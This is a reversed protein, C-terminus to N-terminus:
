ARVAPLHCVMTLRNAVWDRDQHLVGDGPCLRIAADLNELALQYEDHVPWGWLVANECEAIACYHHITALLRPQLYEAIEPVDKLTETMLVGTSITSQRTAIEHTAVTIACDMALTLLGVQWSSTLDTNTLLRLGRVALPTVDRVIEGSRLFPKLLPSCIAFQALHRYAICLGTEHQEMKADLRAKDEQVFRVLDWGVADLWVIHPTMDSILASAIEPDVGVIELKQMHGTISTFPALLRRQHSKMEKSNLNERSPEAIGINMSFSAVYNESHFVTILGDQGPVVYIHGGPLRHYTKQLIDRCFTPLGDSSIIISRTESDDQSPENGFYLNISVSPKFFAQASKNHSIVPLFARELDAELNRLDPRRPVLPWTILVFDNVIHFHKAAQARIRKNVLLLATDFAFTVNQPDSSDKVQAGDLLYSFIKDRIEQPLTSFTTNNM